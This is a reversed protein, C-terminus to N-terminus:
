NYFQMLQADFCASIPNPQGDMNRWAQSHFGKCTFILMIEMNEIICNADYKHVNNYNFCHEIVKGEINM